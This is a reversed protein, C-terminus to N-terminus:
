YHRILPLVGAVTAGIKVQLVLFRRSAHDFVMEPACNASQGIVQSGGPTLDPSVTIQDIWKCVQRVGALVHTFQSSSDLATTGVRMALDFQYVGMFESINQTNDAGLATAWGPIRSECLLWGRATIDAAGAPNTAHSALFQLATRVRPKLEKIWLAGNPAIDSPKTLSNLYSTTGASVLALNSTQWAWAAEQPALDSATSAQMNGTASTLGAAMARERGIRAPLASARMLIPLGARQWLAGM